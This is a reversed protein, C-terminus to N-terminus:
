TKRLAYVFSSLHSPACSLGRFLLVKVGLGIRTLKMGHAVFLSERLEIQPQCSGLEKMESIQHSDADRVLSSGARDRRSQSSDLTSLM